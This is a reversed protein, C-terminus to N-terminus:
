RPARPNKWGARRWGRLDMLNHASFNGSCNPAPGSWQLYDFYMQPILSSDIDDRRTWDLPRGDGSLVQRELDRLRVSGLRMRWLQRAPHLLDLHLRPAFDKFARTMRFRTDLLPWDFSKGNFTVLVPRAKMREFLEQLLSHEENLDRMFFQEVQLGGGEWWAIGVMFAYTGTGGSLGTTETDLFLWQGPDAATVLALEAASSQPLLLPFRVHSGAFVNGAHPYWQEFRYTNATIIAISGPASCNRM